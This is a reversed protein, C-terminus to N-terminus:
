ATAQVHTTSDAEGKKNNNSGVYECRWNGIQMPKASNRGWEGEYILYNFVLFSKPTLIRHSIAKPFTVNWSCNKISLCFHHSYLAQFM